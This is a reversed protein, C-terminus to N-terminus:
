ENDDSKFSELWERAQEAAIDRGGLGFALAIAVAIAGFLLGFALNVIDSAIGIQDLSLAISFITIAVRASQALFRSQRVGSSQVLKFSLNAFFLGIALVVMGSLVRGSIEVIGAILITLADIELVNVAALTAFLLLGVLTVTGAFESPTQVHLRSSPESTTEGATEQPAVVDTPPEGAVDDANLTIGLWEFLNDFGVSKLVSAVLERVFQGGLFALFLILGATFIKPLASLVRDLMAIAPESIAEIELTQLAAIAVPILVLVYVLTGVIGSLSQGEESGNMGLRAGLREAGSSLLLNTVARRVVQAVAWGISGILVAGFINPLVALISDLMGQVPVLTGELQLTSLISPLFLLFVFWYLTNGITESASLPEANEDQGVIQQGFRRDMEMARLMRTTLLRALTALLWALALLLLAGGVQPVFSTIRDLLTNLPETVADLKLAQLSAVLAFLVIVWFVIDGAWKEMPVTEGSERGALWSALRNDLDTQHLATRVLRAAVFAIVFGALLYIVAVIADGVFGAFTDAISNLAQPAGQALHPTSFSLMMHTARVM